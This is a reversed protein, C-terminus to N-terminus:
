IWGSGQVMKLLNAYKHKYFLLLKTSKIGIVFVVPGLYNDLCLCYLKIGMKVMEVVILLGKEICHQLHLSPPLPPQPPLLVYLFAHGYYEM